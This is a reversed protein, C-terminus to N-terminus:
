QATLIWTTISHYHQGPRLETSPFNKHNPSDPYHQTELAVGSFKGYAVGSKGVLTGDFYQGSNFQLGPETTQVLLIRGSVPDYLRAASHLVGTPGRLVWNHDFGGIQRLQHDDATVRRRIPSERTFDYPTHAVPALEGTPIMATDVPTYRDAYLTLRQGLAPGSAEGALNFYTHNTLNVVTLRDTTASYEIQVINRRLTYRVHATLTGPFGQDGDASVLTFEVGDPILVATWNRRDFGETGGHLTNIGRNNITTQFVKGGLELHGNAVRNAYRGAVVGFYTNKNRVYPDLSSYGLAIDGLHGARDKTKLSVVRAGFTIVQLEVESSRLTYEYVVSGDPLTGFTTYTAQSMALCPLVLLLSSAIKLSPMKLDRLRWRLADSPAM